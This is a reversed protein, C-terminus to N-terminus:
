LGKLPIGELLPVARIPLIKCGSPSSKFSVTQEWIRENLFLGGKLLSAIVTLHSHEGEYIFGIVEHSIIFFLSSLLTIFHTNSIYLLSEFLKLNQSFIEPFDLRCLTNSSCLSLSLIPIRQFFRQFIQDVQLM